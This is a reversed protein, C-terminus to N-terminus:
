MSRYCANGCTLRSKIEGQISNQDALTTGLYIFEEVRGFSSSDTNMDHSQGANQSWFMVMYKTKDSNVELGTEKIPVVLAETNKEVTIKLQNM